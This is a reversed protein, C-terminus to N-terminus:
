SHYYKPIVFSFKCPSSIMSESDKFYQLPDDDLRISRGHHSEPSPSALRIMGRRARNQTNVSSVALCISGASLLCTMVLLYLGASPIIAAVACIASSFITSIPLIRPVITTHTVGGSGFIASRFLSLEHRAVHHPRRIAGFLTITAIGSPIPVISLALCLGGIRGELGIILYVWGAILSVGAQAAVTLMVKGRVGLASGMNLSAISNISGNPSHSRPPLNFFERPLNRPRRRPNPILATIKSLLPTPRPLLHLLPLLYYTTHLILAIIFPIPVALLVELPLM